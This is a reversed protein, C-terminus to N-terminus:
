RFLQRFLAVTPDYTGRPWRSKPVNPTFTAPPVTIGAPLPMSALLGTGRLIYYTGNTVLALKLRVPGPDGRCSAWWGVSAEGYGNGDRDAVQISGPVFDLNFDLDCPSTGPDRLPARVMRPRDGLGAVHYVRLTAARVVAGERKDISKTTLLLNRGNADSWSWAEVADGSTRLRARRVEDAAAAADIRTPDAFRPSATPSSASASTTPTSTGTTTASTTTISTSSSPSGGGGGLFWGGTGGAAAVALLGAVAAARRGAASREPTTSV